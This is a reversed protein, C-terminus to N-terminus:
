HCAFNGTDVKSEARGTGEAPPLSSLLEHVSKLNCHQVAFHCAQSFKENVFNFIIKGQQRIHSHFKHIETDSLFGVVSWLLSGAAVFDLWFIM